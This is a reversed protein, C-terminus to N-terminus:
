KQKVKGKNLNKPALKPGRCYPGCIPLPTVDRVTGRGARNGNESNVKGNLPYKIMDSIGGTGTSNNRGYFVM